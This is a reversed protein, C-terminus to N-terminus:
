CCLVCSLYVCEAKVFSEEGAMIDVCFELSSSHVSCVTILPSPPAAPVSCCFRFDDDFEDPLSPFAGICVCDENSESRERMSANGSSSSNSPPPVDKEFGDGDLDVRIPSASSGTVGVGLDTAAPVAATVGVLPIPEKVFQFMSVAGVNAATASVVAVGVRGSPVVIAYRARRDGVLGMFGVEAMDVLCNPAAPPSKYTVALVCTVMV